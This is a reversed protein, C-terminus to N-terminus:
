KVSPRILVIVVKRVQGKSSVLDEGNGAELVIVLKWESIRHILEPFVLAGHTRHAIGVVDANCGHHEPDSLHHVVRPRLDMNNSLFKSSAFNFHRRQELNRPCTTEQEAQRGMDSLPASWIMMEVIDLAERTAESAGSKETAQQNVGGSPKESGRELRTGGSVRTNGAYLSTKRM